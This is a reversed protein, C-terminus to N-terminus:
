SANSIVLYMIWPEFESNRYHPINLEVQQDQTLIKKKSYGNRSNGSNYGDNSHKKYGGLHVDMETEIVKNLLSSTLAKILGNQGLLEEQTMGSLDLQSVIQEIFDNKRNLGHKLM